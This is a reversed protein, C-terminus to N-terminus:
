SAAPTTTQMPTMQVTAKRVATGFQREQLAHVGVQPDHGAPAPPASQGAARVLGLFAATLVATLAALAAARRLRIPTASVSHKMRLDLPPQRLPLGGCTPAHRQHMTAM